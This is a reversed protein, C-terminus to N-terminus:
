QGAAARQAPRERTLQQATIREVTYGRKRLLEVIGDDGVLHGVGVAVFADGGDLMAVIKPMWERNRRKILEDVVKPNKEYKEPDYLIKTVASEDGAKYGYALDALEKKTDRMNDLMDVVDDVGLVEDILEIQYKWDELYVTDLGNALAHSHLADDMNPTVPLLAQTVAVVIFWPRYGRLLDVPLGPVADEIQDWQDTSLGDGVGKGAPAQIYKQMEIQSIQTLDAEMAFTKSEAVLDFVIPNVDKRIDVGLHMTGFLYSPGAKGSVIWLMPPTVKPDPAKRKDSCAVVLLVALWALAIRRM